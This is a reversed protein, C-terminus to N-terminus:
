AAWDLTVSVTSVDIGDVEYIAPSFAANYTFPLENGADITDDINLSTSFSFETAGEDQSPTTDVLTWGSAPAANISLDTITVAANSENVIAANTATSVTGDLAVFVPLTTPLVIQFNKTEVEVAVGMDATGGAATLLQEGIFEDIDTDNVTWNTPSIILVDTESLAGLKAIRKSLISNGTVTKSATQSTFLSAFDAKTDYNGTNSTSNTRIQGPLFYAIGYEINDTVSDLQTVGDKIDYFMIQQRTNRELSTSNTATAAYNIYNKCAGSNNLNTLYIINFIGGNRIAPAIRLYPYTDMSGWGSSGDAKMIKEESRDSDLDHIYIRWEDGYNTAEILNNQIFLNGNTDIVYIFWMLSNNAGEELDTPTVNSIKTLDVYNGTVLPEATMDAPECSVWQEMPVTIDGLTIDYNGIIKSWDSSTPEYTEILGTNVDILLTTLLNPAIIYNSDNNEILLDNDESYLNNSDDEYWYGISTDGYFVENDVVTIDAIVADIAEQKTSSDITNTATMLVDEILDEASAFTTEASVNLTPIIATATILMSGFFAQLRKNKM